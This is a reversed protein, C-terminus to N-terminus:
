SPKPHPTPSFQEPHAKNAQQHQRSSGRPRLFDDLQGLCHRVEREGRVDAVVVIGASLLRQVVDGMPERLIGEDGQGPGVGGETELCAGVPEMGAQEITGRGLRAPQQDLLVRQAVVNVDVRMVGIAAKLM